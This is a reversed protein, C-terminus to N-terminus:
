KQRQATSNNKLLEIKTAITDGVMDITVIIILAGIKVEQISKLILQVFEISPQSHHSDM